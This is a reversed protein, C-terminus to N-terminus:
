ARARPTTTHTRGAVALREGLTHRRGAAQLQESLGPRSALRGVVATGFGAPLGARPGADEGLKVDLNNIVENGRADRAVLQLHLVGSAGPPVKGTFKGQKPDFKLWEPLPQGDGMRAELTLSGSAGFTTFTGPPLTFNFEGGVPAPVVGLSPPAVLTRGSADAAGTGVSVFPPVDISLVPVLIPGDAGRAEADLLPDADVAVLGDLPPVTGPERDDFLAPLPTPPQFDVTVVEPPLAAIPPVSTTLQPPPLPSVTASGASAVDVVVGSADTVKAVVRM